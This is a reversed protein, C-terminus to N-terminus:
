GVNGGDAQPPVVTIIHPTDDRNKRGKPLPVIRMNGGDEVPLTVITGDDGDTPLPILFASDTNTPPVLSFVPDAARQADSLPIDFKRHVGAAVATCVLAATIVCGAAAFILTKKM